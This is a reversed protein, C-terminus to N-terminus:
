RRRRRGTCRTSRCRSLSRRRRSRACCAAATRPLIPIVRRTVEVLGFVNTEFVDRWQDMPVHEVPLYDREIGVNNVLLRLDSPLEISSPDDVDLRQVTISGATTGVEEALGEGAKPDRMTAVVDFGAAPSTSPSPAGSAAAPM